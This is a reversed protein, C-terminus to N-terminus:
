GRDTARFRPRIAIEDRSADANWNAKRLAQAAQALAELM